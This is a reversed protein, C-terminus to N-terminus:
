AQLSCIARQPCHMAPGHAPHGAAARLWCSRRQEGLLPRTRLSHAQALVVLMLGSQLMVGFNLRRYTDVLLLQRESAEQPLSTAAPAPLPPRHLPPRGERPSPPGPRLVYARPAAAIAAAIAHELAAMCAMGAAAAAPRLGCAGGGAARRSCVRGGGVWGRVKLIWTASASTLLAAGALRVCADVLPDSPRQFASWILRSPAALAALALGLTACALLQFLPAQTSPSSLWGRM